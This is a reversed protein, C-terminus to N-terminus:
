PQVPDRSRAALWTEVEALLAKGEAGSTALADRAEVALARARAEEGDAWLARALAFRSDAVESAIEGGAVRLALAREAAARAEAVRDTEVLVKALGTLPYAVDLSDPGSVKEYIALAQRLQAEREGLDATGPALNLLSNAVDYHDPGLAALRIALAREALRRAEAPDGADAVVLGLAELSDAVVPHEAGYLEERIQLARRHLAAAEVLQGQERRLNGLNFTAGAVDAHRDGLADQWIGLAREFPAAADDYRGLELYAVGLSNLSAAVDLAHAGLEEKAAIAQEIHPIAETFKGQSILITGEVHALHAVLLPRNGARRVAAQADLRLMPAETPAVMGVEYLREITIKAALEDWGADAAALRAEELSARSAEPDGVRWQIKARRYLADARLIPNDLTAAEETAAVIIPLAERYYGTIQLADAHILRSVLDVYVDRQAPDVPVNPAALAEVECTALPRLQAVSAAARHVLAPDARDILIAVLAGVEALRDDLCAMRADLLTESQTGTVHTAACAEGRAEVWGATYADLQAAVRGSTDAALPAGTGAFAERLRAARDLDWVGALPADLGTCHRAGADDGSIATAVGFTALGASAVLAAAIAIKRLRGRRALEPDDGLADLLAEV